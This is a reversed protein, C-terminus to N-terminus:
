RLSPSRPSITGGFFFSPFLFVYDQAVTPSAFNGLVRGAGLPPTPLVIFFVFVFRM